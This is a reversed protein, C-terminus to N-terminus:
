LRVCLLTATLIISLAYVIFDAVYSFMMCYFNMRYCIMLGDDNGNVDRRM